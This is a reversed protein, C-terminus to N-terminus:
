GVSSVSMAWRATSRSASNYVVSKGSPSGDHEIAKLTVRLSGCFEEFRFRRRERVVHEGDVALVERM